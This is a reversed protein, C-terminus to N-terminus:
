SLAGCGSRLASACCFPRGNITSRSRMSPKMGPIRMRIRRWYDDEARSLRRCAAWASTRACAHVVRAWSSMSWTLKSREGQQAEGEGDTTEPCPRPLGSRLPTISPVLGPRLPGEELDEGSRQRPHLGRRGPHPWADRPRWRIGGLLALLPLAHVQGPGAVPVWLSLPLDRYPSHCDVKARKADANRGSDRRRQAGPSGPTTAAQRWHSDPRRTQCGLFWANVMPSYAQRGLGHPRSSSKADLTECASEDM